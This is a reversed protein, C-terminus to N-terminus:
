YYEPSIFRALAYLVGTQLAETRPLLGRTLIGVAGQHHKTNRQNSMRDVLPGLEQGTRVERAVAEPLYLRGSSGYGVTEQANEDGGVAVVWAAVFMGQAMDVTYGELGIGIDASRQQRARRARNTAGLIAEEDSMPNISVGSDVEAGVVEAGTWIRQVVSRVATIKSPNTSGVAVQAPSLLMPSKQNLSAYPM